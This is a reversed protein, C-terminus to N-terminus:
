EEESTTQPDDKGFEAEAGAAATVKAQDLAAADVVVLSDEIRLLEMDRYLALAALAFDTRLRALDNQAVLFDEQSELLDRTESRGAELNLASSEVRREALSVSRIQIELSAQVADLQRQADRVGAVVDDRSEQAARRSSDLSILAQRYANREPILDIPLNLDLVANWSFNKGRFDLVANTESSVSADVSLDVGMRLADAAIAARREADELRNLVTRHDLREALSIAMTLDRDLELDLEELLALLPDAAEPDVGLEAEVPLGLFFKFNDLSAELDRQSGIVRSEARYEDQLAQDMDIDSLRGAEAFAQNRIGLLRLSERNAEENRLLDLRQIILYYQSAVNFAFTRRFREYSRAEYLVNREAQLLPEMVIEKGFGRMLPQTLSLSLDSVAGWADGTSLDRTLSLASSGVFRAGSAFLRSISFSADEGSVGLDDADGSLFGGAGASYQYGFEWQTRTLSLASLYLSERRDEFERSNEAAIRLCDSLSLSTARRSDPESLLHSRLAPELGAARVGGPSSLRMSDEAGLSGRAADVIAYTERDADAVHDSAGRCASSSLACLGLVPSWLLARRFTSPM